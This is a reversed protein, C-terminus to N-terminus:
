FGLTSKVGAILKELMKPEKGSLKLCAERGLGKQKMENFGARQGQPFLINEPKLGMIKAAKPLKFFDVKEDGRLLLAKEVRVKSLDLEPFKFLHLNGSIRFGGNEERFHGAANKSLFATVNQPLPLTEDGRLGNRCQPLKEYDCVANNIIKASNAEVINWNLNPIVKDGDILLDGEFRIIDGEVKVKVQKAPMRGQSSNPHICDEIYEEITLFKNENM